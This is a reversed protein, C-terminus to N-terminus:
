EEKDEKTDKNHDAVAKNMDKIMEEIKDEPLGHGAAGQEITEHPSIHCGICHLGFKMFVDATEPHKSVVDGILMDKKIEMKDGSKVITFKYKFITM